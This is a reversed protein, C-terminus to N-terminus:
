SMSCSLPSARPPLLCLLFCVYMYVHIHIFVDGLWEGCQDFNFPWVKMAVFLMKSDEDYFLM